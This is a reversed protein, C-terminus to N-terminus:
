IFLLEKYQNAHNTLEYYISIIFGGRTPRKVNNQVGTIHNKPFYMIYATDHTHKESRISYYMSYEIVIVSM